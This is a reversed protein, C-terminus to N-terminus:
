PGYEFEGDGGGGTEFCEESEANWECYQSWYICDAYDLDSCEAWLFHLFFPLIYLINLIRMLWM